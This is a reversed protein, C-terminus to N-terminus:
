KVPRKKARRRSTKAAKIGRERRIEHAKLLILFKETYSDNEVFEPPVIRGWAAKFKRPTWGLFAAQKSAEIRPSDARDARRWELVKADVQQWVLDPSDEIGACVEHALKWVRRADSLVGLLKRNRDGPALGSWANEWRDNPIARAIEVLEIPTPNEGGLLATLPKKRTSPSKSRGGGGQANKPKAAPPVDVNEVPENM